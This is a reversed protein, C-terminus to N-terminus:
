VHMVDTTINQTDLIYRTQRITIAEVRTTLVTPCCGTNPRRRLEALRRAFNNRGVTLTKFYSTFQQVCTVYDM